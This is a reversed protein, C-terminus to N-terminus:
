EGDGGVIIELAEEATLDEPEEQVPIENVEYWDDPSANKGLYVRQSYTEGNCLYMGENPILIRVGKANVTVTM